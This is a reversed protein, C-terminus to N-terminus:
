RPPIEIFNVMFNVMKNNKKLNQKNIQSLTHAHAPPPPSPLLGASQGRLLSGSAPRSGLVGLDHGSSFDSM